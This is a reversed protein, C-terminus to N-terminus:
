DDQKIFAGTEPNVEIIVSYLTQNDGGLLEFTTQGTGTAEFELYISAPYTVLDAGAEEPDDTFVVVDEYPAEFESVIEHLLQENSIRYNIGELDYSTYHISIMDGEIYTVNDDICLYENGTIEALTGFFGDPTKPKDALLTCYAYLDPYSIQCSNIEGNLVPVMATHEGSTGKYWLINADEPYNFFVDDQLASSFYYQNGGHKFAVAAVPFNKDYDYTYYTSFYIEEEFSGAPFVAMATKVDAEPIDQMLEDFSAYVTQDMGFYTYEPTDDMSDEAAAETNVPLSNDQWGCASFAFCGLVAMALLFYRGTKKM